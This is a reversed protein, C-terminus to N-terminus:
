RRVPYLYNSEEAEHLRNICERCACLNGMRVLEHVSNCFTCSLRLRKIVIGGDQMSIEVEIGDGLRLEKIYEPPLTIKGGKEISAIM